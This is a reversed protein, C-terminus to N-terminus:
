YVFITNYESVLVLHSSKKRDESLEDSAWHEIQWFVTPPLDGVLDGGREEKRRGGLEEGGKGEGEGNLPPGPTDGAPFNKLVLIATPSTQHM